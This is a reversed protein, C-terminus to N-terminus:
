PCVWTSISSIPLRPSYAWTRFLPFLVPTSNSRGPWCWQGLLPCGTAAGEAGPSPTTGGAYAPSAGNPSSGPNRKTGKAGKQETQIKGVFEARPKQARESPSPAEFAECTTALSVAEMLTKPMALHVHRRTERERLGKVFLGVLVEDGLQRGPYADKALKKLARAFSLANENKGMVRSWLEAVSRSERGPPAFTNLLAESLRGFDYQHPGPLMTLLERAEGELCCALEPGKDGYDWRNIQSVINFQALFDHIDTSGGGFKPPEKIRRPAIPYSHAIQIPPDNVVRRQYPPSSHASIDTSAYCSSGRVAETSSSIPPPTDEYGRPARYSASGLYERENEVNYGYDYQAPMRRYAEPVRQINQYREREQAIPQPRDYSGLDNQFYRLEARPQAEMYLDGGRKTELKSPFKDGRKNYKPLNEYIPEKMKKHGDFGPSYEAWKVNKRSAAMPSSDRGSADGGERQEFQLQRTMAHIEATVPTFTRVGREREENIGRAGEVDFIWQDIKARDESAVPSASPAEVIRRYGKNLDQESIVTDPNLQVTDDLEERGSEQKRDREGLVPKVVFPDDWLEM